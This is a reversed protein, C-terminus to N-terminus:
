RISAPVARLAEASTIIVIPLVLVGLTLGAAVMTKGGTVQRLLTVFLALGLLGYVISPVGALNRINVSVFRNFRTNPAYEEMYIASAIGLPVAIVLVLILTVFSGVLGQWVGANEASFVSLPAKIFQLNRDMFLGLGRNLVDSILVLLILLSLGLAVLLAVQFLVEGVHFRRGELSREVTIKEISPNATAM